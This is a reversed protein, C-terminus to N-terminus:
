NKISPDLFLKGNLWENEFITDYKKYFQIAPDNWELVQWKLLVAKKSKAIEIVEDFLLKGIGLKRESEKVVFDELYLMRGRWTSYTMYYLAMGVVESDREAVISEFINDEFDQYYDEITATVSEPSKEYLALEKVLAYIAPLDENQAKRITIKHM